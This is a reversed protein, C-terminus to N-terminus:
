PHIMHMGSCFEKELVALRTELETVQTRMLNVRENELFTFINQARMIKLTNGAWYFFAKRMELSYLRNESFGINDRAGAFLTNFLQTANCNFNVDNDKPNFTM